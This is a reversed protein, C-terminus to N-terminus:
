ICVIFSFFFVLINYFFSVVGYIKHNLPARGNWKVLMQAMFKDWAKNKKMLYNDKNKWKVLMESLESVKV